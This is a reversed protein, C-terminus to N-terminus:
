GPMVLCSHNCFYVDTLTLLPFGIFFCDSGFCIFELLRRKTVPKAIPPTKAPNLVKSQNVMLEIEGTALKPNKMDAPRAMVTGTVQVVYEGRLMEGVDHAEPSNEPNFVAQTIGYSASYEISEGPLLDPLDADGDLDSGGVGAGIVSLLILGVGQWTQPERRDNPQAHQQMLSIINDSPLRLM